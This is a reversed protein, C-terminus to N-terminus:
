NCRSVVGARYARAADRWAARTRMVPRRLIFFGGPLVGSAEIYGTRGTRTGPAQIGHIATTHQRRQCLIVPHYPNDLMSHMIQFFYSGGCGDSVAPSYM